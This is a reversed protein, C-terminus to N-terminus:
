GEDETRLTVLPMGDGDMTVTVVWPRCCVSCDQEYDQKKGATMDIELSCEEGCYPCVASVDEIM